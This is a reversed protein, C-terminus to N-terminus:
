NAKMSTWRSSAAHERSARGQIASLGIGGAGFVVVLSGAEVKATNMVTGLYIGFYRGGPPSAKPRQAVNFKNGLSAM